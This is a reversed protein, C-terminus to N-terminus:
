KRSPTTVVLEAPATSRNPAPAERQVTNRGAVTGILWDALVTARNRWSPLKALYLAKWTLYGPIGALRIRRVDVISYRDGLSILVGLPDYTFPQLAQGRIGRLVNAAVHKAEREAIQASQAYPKSTITNNVFSCDGIAYVGLWDKVQLTEDCLIRNGRTREFPSSALLPNGTIGATWVLTGLPLTGETETHVANPTAGTVPTSLLVRVGKAELRKQTLHQVEPEMGTLLTNMAEVVIISMEAPSLRPYQKHMTQPLFDALDAALEVGTLGGGAIVFSLLAKRKMPDPERDAQELMQLVHSHFRVADPIDKFTLAVSEVDNMGFYNTTAGLAIVLVDYPIVGADTTVTRNAADLHTVAAQYFTVGLERTADRLSQTIHQSELIGTGVEPLMPTFLFYNNKDVLTIRLNLGTAKAEKALTRATQVGGFGGGLIVIRTVPEAAIEPLGTEIM